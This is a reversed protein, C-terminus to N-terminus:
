PNTGELFVLVSKIVSLNVYHLVDQETHAYIRSSFNTDADEEHDFGLTSYEYVFMSRTTFVLREEPQNWYKRDRLEYLKSEQLDISSSASLKIM